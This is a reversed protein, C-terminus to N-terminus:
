SKSACSYMEIVLFGSEAKKGLVRTWILAATGEIKGHKFRLLQGASLRLGDHTARFGQESIDCLLGRIPADRSDDSFLLLEGECPSRLSRRREVMKEELRLYDARGRM